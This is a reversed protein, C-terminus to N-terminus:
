LRKAAALLHQGLLRAEAPSLQAEIRLSKRPGSLRLGLLKGGGVDIEQVRVKGKRLCSTTINEQYYNQGNNFPLEEWPGRDGSM